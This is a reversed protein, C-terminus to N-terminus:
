SPRGGRRGGKATPETPPTADTSDASRVVDAVAAKSIRIEVKEAIRVLVTDDQVDTVMGHIGGRTVVRAGRRVKELTARTERDRRRQPLISTLLMVGILMAFLVAYEWLSAGGTNTL